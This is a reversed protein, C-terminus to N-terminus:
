HVRQPRRWNGERASAQRSVVQGGIEVSHSRVPEPDMRTLSKNVGSCRSELVQGDLTFRALTDDQV